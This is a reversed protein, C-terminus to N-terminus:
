PAPQFPLTLLPTAPSAATLDVQFPRAPTNGALDELAPDVELTYAAARWPEAPRFSWSREGTAVLGEGAVRGRSDDFVLVCRDLLHRDLPEPFRVVLPDRRGARPPELTWNELTPQRHDEAAATFRKEFDKGLPRGAQDQWDGDVVLTYSQGPELVSGLDERLNVGAKVRGPHVWLTLRRSDATWLETPRWPDPVVRGTSDVLRVREFVERGERMPHSFHLYFKLLNAPLESATPYIAEVEPPPGPPPLPVRYQATETQDQGLLLEARYLRGATLARRPTFLLRDKELAYRGFIPAGARGTQEDVLTLRLWRQGLEQDIEQDIEAAAIERRAASPLVAWVEVRAPEEGARIEVGAGLVLCVLLAHM